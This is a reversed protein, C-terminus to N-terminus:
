RNNGRKKDNFHLLIEYAVDSGDFGTSYALEYDGLTKRIQEFLLAENYNRKRCRSSIEIFLYRTNIGKLSKIVEIEFGEVDVKILDYSKRKTLASPDHCLKIAVQEVGEKDGANDELISGVASRGPQYFMKGAQAHSPSLAFNYVQANSGLHSINAQLMNIVNPNPEFIDLVRPKAFYSLTTSFQGINGGIDLISEPLDHMNSLIKRDIEYPYIQLNLPTAPNDYTFYEGLYKVRKVGFVASIFSLPIYVYYLLKDVPKTSATLWQRNRHLLKLNSIYSSLKM